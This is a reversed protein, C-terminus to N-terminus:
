DDCKGVVDVGGHSLLLWGHVVIKTNSLLYRTLMKVYDRGYPSSTTFTYTGDINCSSFHWSMRVTDDPDDSTIRMVHTCSLYELIHHDPTNVTLIFNPMKILNNHIDIMNKNKPIPM